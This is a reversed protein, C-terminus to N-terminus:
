QEGEIGKMIEVETFLGVAKRVKKPKYVGTVAM